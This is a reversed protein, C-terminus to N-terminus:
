NGNMVGGEVLNNEDIHRVIMTAHHGGSCQFSASAHYQANGSSILLTFNELSFTQGLYAFNSGFNLSSIRFYCKEHRSSENPYVRFEGYYIKWQSM